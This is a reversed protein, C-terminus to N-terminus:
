VGKEKSKKKKSIVFLIAVILIILLFVGVVSITIIQAPTLGTNLKEYVAAAKITYEMDGSDLAYTLTANYGNADPLAVTDSYYATYEAVYREGTAVADRYQVNNETYVDGTWVFDTIRYSEQPLNLVNLIDAEYGALAPKQNDYPVYRGNLLYYKSDYQEFRTPITVDSVWHYPTTIQFNTLPLTATVTQGTQEDTYNVTKSNAVAPQSLVYGSKLTSEIEATRNTIITDSYSVDSLKGLVEKGKTNVFTKEEEAEVNQEYLDKIEITQTEMVPAASITEYTVVKLTYTGNDKILEEDFAHTEDEKLSTYEVIETIQNENAASNDETAASSCGILLSAAIMGSLLISVIKKM